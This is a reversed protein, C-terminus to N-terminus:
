LRGFLEPDHSKQDLDYKVAGMLSSRGVKTTAQLFKQKFLGTSLIILM